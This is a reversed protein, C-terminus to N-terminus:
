GGWGDARRRGRGGGGGGGRCCRRGREMVKMMLLHPPTRQPPTVSAWLVTCAKVQSQTLPSCAGSLQSVEKSCWVTATKPNRTLPFMWLLPLAQQAHLSHLRYKPTSAYSFGVAGHLGRGAPFCGLLCLVQKCSYRTHATCSNAQSRIPLVCALLPSPSPTNWSVDKYTYSHQNTHLWLVTSDRAPLDSFLGSPFFESEYQM